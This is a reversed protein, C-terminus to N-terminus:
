QRNLQTRLESLEDLLDLVLAVGSLNIGLDRHLSLAKDARILTTREFQWQSVTNGKCPTIIGQNALKIMKETPVQCNICLEELTLTSEEELIQGSLIKVVQTTM